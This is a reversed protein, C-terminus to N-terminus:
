EQQTPTLDTQPQVYQAHLGDLISQLREMIKELREKVMPFKTQSIQLELEQIKTELEDTSSTENEDNDQSTTSDGHEINLGEGWTNAFRTAMSADNIAFVIERVTSWTEIDGKGKSRKQSGLLVRKFAPVIESIPNRYAGCGWAGLVVGDIGESTLIRMVARIKRDALERDSENAYAAKHLNKDTLDPFRLMAATVVGVYFRDATSLERDPSDKSGGPLRFVCIDPSWIGGVDPLRYWEDRLSPLLTTRTCISEEQAFAGRLVGGGPQLPSAMNLIAVRRCTQRLGQAAVLTDNVEIRIGIQSEQGGDIQSSIKKEQAPPPDIILEATQVGQRAKSDSVLIAPIIKNVTEKAHKARQDKLLSHPRRPGMTVANCALVSAFIDQGPSISLLALIAEGLARTRRPLRDQHNM